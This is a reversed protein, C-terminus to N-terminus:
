EFQGGPTGNKQKVAVGPAQGQILRTVNSAPVEGIDGMNINSVASTIDRKRQTGYGVVVVEELAKADSTLTFDIATRNNVAVEQSLYGIFSVVLTGAGNPLSLTYNGAPDTTTGNTTGKLLLTVGPLGEGKDDMVRGKVSIGQAWAGTTSILLLQLILLYKRKQQLFDKM